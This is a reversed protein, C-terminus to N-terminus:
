SPFSGSGLESVHAEIGRGAPWQCGQKKSQPGREGYSLKYSPFQSGESCTFLRVPSIALILAMSKQYGLTLLSM